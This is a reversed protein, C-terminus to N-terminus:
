RPLHNSQIYNHCVVQWDRRRNNTQSPIIIDLQWSNRGRNNTKYCRYDLKTSHANRRDIEVESSENVLQRRSITRTNSSKRKVRHTHHSETECERHPRLPHPSHANTLTRAHTCTHIHTYTHTYMHTDTHSNAYTERYKKTRTDTQRHCMWSFHFVHYMWRPRFVHCMWPLLLHSVNLTVFSTVCELSRFVHCM